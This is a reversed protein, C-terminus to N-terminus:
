GVTSNFPECSANAARKASPTPAPAVNYRAGCGFRACPAFARPYWRSNGGTVLRRFPRCPCPQLATWHRTILCLCGRASFGLKKSKKLGDVSYVNQLCKPRNVARLCRCVNEQAENFTMSRIRKCKCHTERINVHLCDCCFVVIFLSASLSFSAQPALPGLEFRAAGVM